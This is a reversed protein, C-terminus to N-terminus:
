GNTGEQTPIALPQAANAVPVIDISGVGREDEIRVVRANAVGFWAIGTTKDNCIIVQGNVALPILGTLAVALAQDRTMEGQWRKEQQPQPTPLSSTQASNTTSNKESDKAKQESM